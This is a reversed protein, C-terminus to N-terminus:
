CANLETCNCIYAATPALPQSTIVTLMSVHGRNREKMKIYRRSFAFAAILFFKRSLSLLRFSYTSRAKESLYVFFIFVFSFTNPSLSLLYFLLIFTHLRGACTSINM